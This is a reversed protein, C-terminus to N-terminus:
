NPTTVCVDILAQRKENRIVKVAQLLADPLDIGKKVRQTHARSAEAIKCYDPLPELSTIPLTNM